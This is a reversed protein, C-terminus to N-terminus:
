ALRRPRQKLESDITKSAEKLKSFIRSVDEELESITGQLSSSRTLYYKGTKEILGSKRLNNLHNITAGRSIKLRKAIQTSSIRQGLETSSVIERFASAATKGKDINEFFGLTKCIWYFEDDLDYTIPKPIRRITLEFSPEILSHM